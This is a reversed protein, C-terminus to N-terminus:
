TLWLRSELTEGNVCARGECLHLLVNAGERSSFTSQAKGPHNVIQPLRQQMSRNVSNKKLLQPPFVLTVINIVEHGTTVITVIKQLALAVTM